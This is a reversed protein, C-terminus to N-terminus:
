RSRHPVGDATVTTAHVQYLKPSDPSWLSVGSLGTISVRPWRRAPRPRDSVTGSAAGLQNAGDLVAANLTM